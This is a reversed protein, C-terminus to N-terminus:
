AVRAARASEREHFHAVARRGILRDRRQITMVKVTARQVDIFGPGLRLAAGATAAAEGATAAASGATATTTTRTAFRTPLLQLSRKRVTAARIPAAVTLSRLRRM